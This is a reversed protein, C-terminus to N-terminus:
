WVYCIVEGGVGQARAQEETLVGSSTTLIATGIGSLVKPLRTKPVYVRQGPRSIRRIHRLIPKREKTYKLYVRLVEQPHSEKLSRWNQVFGEKKLCDAIACGLRSAPFDVHPKGARSANRIASLLDGTPDTQSM